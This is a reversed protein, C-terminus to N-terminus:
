LKLEAYAEPSDIDAFIGQHDVPVKIMNNAHRTLLAKAGSDGSLQKIEAFYDSGWLVPNGRKGQYYPAIIQDNNSFAALLKKIDAGSVLPMDGLLMIAGDIPQDNSELAQLGCRLSSAMGSVFNPNHVCRVALGQTAQVVADAEHGTVVIINQLQATLAAQIVQVIMSANNFPLLLKNQTGMRTSLGAALVIAAINNAM